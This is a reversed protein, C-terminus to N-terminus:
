SHQLPAALSVAPPVNTHTAAPQGRRTELVVASGPQFQPELWVLSVVRRVGLATGAILGASVLVPIAAAAIRMMGARRSSGRWRSAAPPILSSQAADLVPRLGCVLATTTVVVFALILARGDLVVPNAFVSFMVGQHNDEAVLQVFALLFLGPLMAALGLGASEALSRGAVWGQKGPGLIMEEGGRLRGYARLLLVGATGAGALLMGAIACAAAAAASARVDEAAGMSPRLGAAASVVAGLALAGGFAAALRM